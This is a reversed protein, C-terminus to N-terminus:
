KLIEMELRDLRANIEVTEKMDKYIAQWAIGARTAESFTGGRMADELTDLADTQGRTLRLLIEKDISSSLEEGAKKLESQFIPDKMWRSLTRANIGVMEAAEKETRTNLLATIARSQKYTLKKERMDDISM